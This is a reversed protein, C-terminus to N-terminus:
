CADHSKFGCAAWSYLQVFANMSLCFILLIRVGMMELRALLAGPLYPMDVWAGRVSLLAFVACVM